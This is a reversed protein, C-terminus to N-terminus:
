TRIGIQKLYDDLMTGSLEGIHVARIIGQGDIFITTPYGRVQYLAQVKSGPDLLIPFTIKLGTVFDKVLSFPEDYNIGVVTLENPFQDARQQLLPMEQKCPTCWTAWFNLLVVKGKLDSLGLKDGELGQLEFGPAARGVISSTFGAQPSANGTVPLQNSGNYVFIFVLGAGVGICLGVLIMRAELRNGGFFTNM